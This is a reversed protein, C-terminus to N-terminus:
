CPRDEDHRALRLAEAIIRVERGRLVSAGGRQAGNVEVIAIEVTEIERSLFRITAGRIPVEGVFPRGHRAADIADWLTPFCESHLRLNGHPSGDIHERRLDIAPPRGPTFIVEFSRRITALESVGVVLVCHLDPAYAIAASM